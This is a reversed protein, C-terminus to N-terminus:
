GGPFHRDIEQLMGTYYLEVSLYAASFLLLADAVLLILSHRIVSGRVFYRMYLLNLVGLGIVALVAFQWHDSSYSNAENWLVDISLERTDAIPAVVILALRFLMGWALIFTLSNLAYLLTIKMRPYNRKVLDWVLLVGLLLWISYALYFGAWVVNNLTQWTM